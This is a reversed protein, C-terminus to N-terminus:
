HRAWFVAFWGRQDTWHQVHAYGARALLATFEAIEYKYSNETHIREGAAFRRQTVSTARTDQDPWSVTVDRKAELHMEIRGQAVNFLAVHRFDAVDFNAGLLRNAVNLM